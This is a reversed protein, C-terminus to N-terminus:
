LINMVLKQQTRIIINGASLVVLFLPYLIVFKMDIKLLWKMGQGRSIFKSTRIDLAMFYNYDQDTMIFRKIAKCRIKEHYKWVCTSRSVYM